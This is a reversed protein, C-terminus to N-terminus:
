GEFADLGVPEWNALFHSLIARAVERYVDVIEEHPIADLEDLTVTRIDTSEGEEPIGLPDERTIFAYSLDTHHHTDPTGPYEKTSVLVPQPHITLGPIYRVGDIPQLVKLQEPHYGTEETLEHMVTQWPTEQIEVHGGFMMLKGIKRHQHLMVAPESGDIRIIFMSVTLDHDGSATHIHAM